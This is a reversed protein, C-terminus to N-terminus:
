RLGLFLNYQIKNQKVKFHSKKGENKNNYTIIMFVLTYVMQAWKWTFFYKQRQSLKASINAHELFNQPTLSWLKVSVMSDLSATDNVCRLWVRQYRQCQLILSWSTLSVLFDFHNRLNLFFFFFRWNLLVTEWFKCKQCQKQKM